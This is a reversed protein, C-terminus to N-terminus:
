GIVGLSKKERTLLLQKLCDQNQFLTWKRRKRERKGANLILKKNMKRSNYLLLRALMDLYRVNDHNSKWRRNIRNLDSFGTEILWRRRYFLSTRSAWSSTKGKPKETTMIAFVRKRADDLSVKGIRYDRKVGQLTFSRKAKIILYVHQFFRHKAETASSFTYRRVRNGEGKIYAEIMARIKKYEKTPILVNGNKAKIEHLLVARYFERDMLVYNLELGLHLLHDLFELIIPIKSQGNAVHELGAYLHVNKSLISFGLYHRMKNTGKQRNTGKIMKDERQGYYPHETFDIIVNVKKSILKLRLAEMIQSDLCIRLISRARNLRIKRLYKNVETQHPIIRKRRGDPLCKRRGKKSRLLYENLMESTDHISRGLIESFFFVKLFDLDEYRANKARKFRWARSVIANCFKKFFALM